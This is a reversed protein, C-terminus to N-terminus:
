RSRTPVPPTSSWGRDEGPRVAPSTPWWMKAARSTTGTCGQVGAPLPPLRCPLPRVGVSRAASRRSRSWRTGEVGGQGKWAREVPRLSDLGVGLATPRRDGHGNGAESKVSTRRQWPRPRGSTARSRAGVTERTRTRAWPPKKSRRRWLRCVSSHWTWGHRNPGALGARRRRPTWSISRYSWALGGHGPPGLQCQSAPGFGMQHKSGLRPVYPRPRRPAVAVM